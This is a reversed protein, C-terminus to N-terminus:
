NAYRAKGEGALDLASQSGFPFVEYPFMSAGEDLLAMAETMMRAAALGQAFGLMRAGGISCPNAESVELTYDQTSWLWFVTAVVQHAKTEVYMERGKESTLREEEARRATEAAYLAKVVRRAFEDPDEDDANEPFDGLADMAAVLMARGAAIEEEDTVDPVITPYEM